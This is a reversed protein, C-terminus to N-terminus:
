RGKARWVLILTLLVRLNTLAALLFYLGKVWGLLVMVMTLFVREDRKGPIRRLLPIEAHLARGFAGRYRESTYSVMVSGFVALLYVSFELTGQPPFTLGLALLFSFDVIRDLVSDLWGGFPSTRLSARAIEGDIGDLMSSVQYLVAAWAPSAFVLLAALLGLLTTLITAQNPTLRDVLRVSVWTSVRRNLWRSVLGDGAGKVSRKVLLYTARRLDEPTDVDMWFFGALLSCPIQARAMIESLSVEDKEQVLAEAATFVEPTLVFFGTDFGTYRKLGKSLAKIRGGECLAKTAEEPDIFLGEPDVVLGQCSVAEKVFAPEYVHDGMTLVFPGKVKERALYFSYGNGREPEANLVLTCPFEPHRALFERFHREHRPNIVIIFESVGAEKLLRLHRYLLERGAVRLLPKPFDETYPRLRTGLGAALIVAQM